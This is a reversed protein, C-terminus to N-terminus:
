RRRMQRPQPAVDGTDASRESAAEAQAVVADSGQVKDFVHAAAESAIDSAQNGTDIQPAFGGVAQGRVMSRAVSTRVSVVHAAAGTLASRDIAEVKEGFHQLEEDTFPETQDESDVKVRGDDSGLIGIWSVHGGVELNRTGPVVSRQQFHKAAAYETRFLGPPIVIHEGNFTGEIPRRGRNRCIVPSDPKLTTENLREVMLNAVDSMDPLPFATQKSM